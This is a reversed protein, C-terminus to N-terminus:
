CWWAAPPARRAFIAPSPHRPATLEHLCRPLQLRYTCRCAVWWVHLTCPALTGGHRFGVEVAM